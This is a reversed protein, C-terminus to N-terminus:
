QSISYCKRYGKSESQKGNNSVENKGEAIFLSETFDANALTNKKNGIQNVGKLLNLLKSKTKKM